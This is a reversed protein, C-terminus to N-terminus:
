WTESEAIGDGVTVNWDEMEKNLNEDKEVECACRYLAEERREIEKEILESFVKSRKGPPILGKLRIFLDNPVCIVIKQM